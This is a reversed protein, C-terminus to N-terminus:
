CISVASAKSLQFRKLDSEHVVLFSIMPPIFTCLILFFSFQLVFYHQFPLFSFYLPIMIMLTQQYCLNRNTMGSLLNKLHGRTNVCRQYIYTKAPRGVSIHGCAPTLRLVNSIPKDKSGWCHRAHRGWRVQITQTIPALHVYLQQKPSHQKWSINLVDNLMRIYNELKKTLM